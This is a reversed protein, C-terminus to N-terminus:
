AVRFAKLLEEGSSYSFAHLSSDAEQFPALYSEICKRQGEDDDCVTIDM